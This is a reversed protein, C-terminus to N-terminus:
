KKDAIKYFTELHNLEDLIIETNVKGIQKQLKKITSTVQSKVLYHSKSTYYAKKADKHELHYQKYYERRDRQKPPTGSSIQGDEVCRELTCHHCDRNCKEM